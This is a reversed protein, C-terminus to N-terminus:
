AESRAGSPRRKRVLRSALHSSRLHPIQRLYALRGGLAEVARKEPPEVQRYEGGKVVVDPRLARVLPVATDEAFLLVHDVCELGAIMEARQREPVLPRGRGKLERVRRDRNVGVVLIDGFSRAQELSRLHGVHILDFCGNTFVIRRGARRERELLRQLARRGRIKERAPKM